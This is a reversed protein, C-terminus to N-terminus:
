KPLLAQALLDDCRPMRETHGRIQASVVPLLNELRSMDKGPKLAEEEGGEDSLEAGQKRHLM